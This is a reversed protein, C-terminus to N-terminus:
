QHVKIMTNQDQQKKIASHKTKTIDNSSSKSKVTANHNTQGQKSKHDQNLRSMETAQIYKFNHMNNRDEHQRSYM